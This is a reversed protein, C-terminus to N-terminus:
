RLNAEERSIKMNLLQKKFHYGLCNKMMTLQTMFSLLTCVTALHCVTTPNRSLDATVNLGLPIVSCRFVFCLNTQRLDETRVKEGLISSYGYPVCGCVEPGTLISQSRCAQLSVDTSCQRLSPDLALFKATATMKKVSWMGFHGSSSSSFPQLNDIYIKAGTDRRKGGGLLM